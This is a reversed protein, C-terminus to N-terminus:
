PSSQERLNMAPVRGLDGVLEGGLKDLAALFSKVGKPFTEDWIVSLLEVQEGLTLTEVRKVVADWEPADQKNGCGMAIVKCVCQPVQKVLEKVDVDRNGGGMIKRLEPFEDLLHLFALGSLGSVEVQVGRIEVPRTKQGIDLLSPM